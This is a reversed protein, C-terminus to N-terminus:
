RKALAGRNLWDTINSELWAQLGEGHMLTALDRSLDEPEVLVLWGKGYPDSNALKPNDLVDQNIEVVNGAVIMPLPGVYKGAEMTGFPRDKAVPRGAPKFRIFSIAKSLAQAVDDLGIRVLGDEEVRAWLHHVPHYYLEDPLNYNEFSAMM